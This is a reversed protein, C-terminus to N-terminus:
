EPFRVLQCGPGERHGLRGGQGARHRQVPTPPRPPRVRGTRLWPGELCSIVRNDQLDVLRAPRPGRATARTWAALCWAIEMLMSPSRPLGSTTSNSIRFWSMGLLTPIVPRPARSRRSDRGARDLLSRRRRTWGIFHSRARASLEIQSEISRFQSERERSGAAEARGRRVASPCRSSARFRDICLAVGVIAMAAAASIGPNRKTWSRARQDLRPSRRPVPEGSVFRRLDDGLAKASAYRHGPEKEIAHM